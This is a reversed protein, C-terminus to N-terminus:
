IVRRMLVNMWNKTSIKSFYGAVAVADAKIELESVKKAAMISEAALARISEGRGHSVFYYTRPTFISAIAIGVLLAFMSKRM